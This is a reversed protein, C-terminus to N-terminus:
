IESVIILKKFEILLTEILRTFTDGLIFCFVREAQNNM